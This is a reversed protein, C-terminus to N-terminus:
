RARRIAETLFEEFTIAGFTNDPTLNWGERYAHLVKGPMPVGAIRRKRGAAALYQQALDLITQVLPGGIDTARGAPGSEVLDVLARAADRTDISQFQLGSPLPMVPIRAARRLISLVLDHFQTIRQVTWPLAGGQVIGEIGVKYRYMKLPIRDVGVISVYILHPSGGLLATDILRRTGQVDNGMHRYDTACHIIADVDAVADAVRVGTVLDGTVWQARSPDSSDKERRSLVRPLRDREILEQVVARGLRGTAGTVLIPRDMGTVSERPIRGRVNIARRGSATRRGDRM